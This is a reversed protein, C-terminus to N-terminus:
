PRAPWSAAKCAPARLAARRATACPRAARQWAAAVDRPAAYSARPTLLRWPTRMTWLTPTSADTCRRRAHAARSRRQCIARAGAPRRRRVSGSWTGTKLIAYSKFIDVYKFIELFLLQLPAISRCSEWPAVYTKILPKGPFTPRLQLKEV